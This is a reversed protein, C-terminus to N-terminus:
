LSLSTSFFKTWAQVVYNNYTPKTSSDLPSYAEVIIIGVLFSMEPLQVLCRM